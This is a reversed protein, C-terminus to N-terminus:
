INIPRRVIQTIPSLIYTEDTKHRSSYQSGEVYFSKFWIHLWLTSILYIILNTPFTEHKVNRTVPFRDTHFM